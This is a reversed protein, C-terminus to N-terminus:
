NLRVFLHRVIQQSLKINRDVATVKLPDISVNLLAYTAETYDAIPYALKRRGWNDIASVAGGQEVVWGKVLDLVGGIDAEAVDSPIVVTLEYNRNM